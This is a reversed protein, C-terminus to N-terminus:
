ETYILTVSVKKYLFEKKIAITHMHAHTHTHVHTHTCTNTHMHRHTHTHICTHAMNTHNHKHMHRLLPCARCSPTVWPLNGPNRPSGCFSPSPKIRLYLADWCPYVLGRSSPPGLPVFCLSHVACVHECMCVYLCVRACM